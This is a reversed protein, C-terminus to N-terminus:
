AHTFYHKEATKRATIAKEKREFFGLHIQKKNHYIYARWKREATDWSVGRTGSINDSRITANENNQKSSADRLNRWRNDDRVRNRHDLFLRPWRGKMYFWVVHHEPYAIGFITIYRYGTWHKSGARTGPIVRPRQLLWTLVGTEPDYHLLECLVKRTLNRKRTDVSPLVNVGVSRQLQDSRM